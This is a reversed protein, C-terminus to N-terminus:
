ANRVHVQVYYVIKKTQITGTGADKLVLALLKIVFFIKVVSLACLNVSRGTGGLFVGWVILQVSATLAHVEARTNVSLGMSEVNANQVHPYVLVNRVCPRVNMVILKMCITNQKASQVAQKLVIHETADPFWACPGM